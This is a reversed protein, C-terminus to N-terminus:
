EYSLPKVHFSPIKNFHQKFINYVVDLAKNVDPRRVIISDHVTLPVIDIKVLNNCICDIFIFSEIKQLLIPLLAHDKSKLITVAEAVFPFVSAFIAKEKEYPVIKKRDKYIVNQSFLVKFMMSKVQDREQNLSETLNDYLKGELAWREFMSLNVKKSKEQNQHIKSLSRLTKLGFVKVFSYDFNKSCLVTSNYNNKIDIIRKLVQGLLFPQSNKLDISIYDGILFQKLDGKLNTINTDIRLNTKNRGFYRLRSDILSQLQMAYTLRKLGNSHKLIWERAAEEDIRINMFEKRMRKIFESQRNYHATRNQYKKKLENFLTQGPKVEIFGLDIEYKPNVKYWKSKVGPTYINDSIIFEGILLYKFYSNTKCDTLLKLANLNVYAFGKDNSKKQMMQLQFLHYIVYHFYVEEFKFPPPKRM